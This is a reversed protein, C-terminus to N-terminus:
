GIHRKILRVELVQEFQTRPQPSKQVPAVLLGPSRAKRRGLMLKQQRDSAVRIRSTRGDAIKGIIEHQSVVAGDLQDVACHSVPKDLALRIRIVFSCHADRQGSGADRLELHEGLSMHLLQGMESWGHAGQPVLKFAAIGAGCM